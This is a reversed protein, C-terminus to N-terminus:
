PQAFRAVFNDIVAKGPTTRSLAIAKELCERSRKQDGLLHWSIAAHAMQYSEGYSFLAREDKKRPLESLFEAVQRQDRFRNFFPLAGQEVILRLEHGVHVDADPGDSSRLYWWDSKAVLFGPRVSLVGSAADMASPPERNWWIRMHDPIVIGCNLTFGYQESTNLDDSETNLVHYIPVLERVYTRGKQIFGHTHLVPTVWQKLIKQLRVAFSRKPTM